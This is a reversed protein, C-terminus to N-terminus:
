SFYCYKEPKQKLIDVKINKKLLNNETRLQSIGALHENKILM